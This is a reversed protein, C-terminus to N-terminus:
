VIGRLIAQNILYSLYFDGMEFKDIILNSIEYLRSLPSNVHCETHGLAPCWDFLIPVPHNAVPSMIDWMVNYKPNESFIISVCYGKYVKFTLLAPVTYGEDKETFKVGSYGFTMLQTLTLEDHLTRDRIRVAGLYYDGVAIKTLDGILQNFSKISTKFEAIKEPTDEGVIQHKQVHENERSYTFIGNPPKCCEELAINLLASPSFQALCLLPLVICDNLWSPYDDSVVGSITELQKKEQDTLILNDWTAEQKYWSLGYIASSNELFWHHESSLKSLHDVYEKTKRDTFNRMTKLEEDGGNMQKSYEEIYELEIQLGSKLKDLLIRNSRRKDADLLYYGPWQRGGNPLQDDTDLLLNMINKYDKENEDDILVRIDDLMDLLGRIRPAIEYNKTFRGVLPIDILKEDRLIRIIHAKKRLCDLIFQRNLVIESYKSYLPDLGFRRDPYFRTSYDKAVHKILSIYGETTEVPYYKSEKSVKEFNTTKRLIGETELQKLTKYFINDNAYQKFGKDETCEKKYQEYLEKPTNAWVFPLRFRPDNEMGPLRLAWMSYRNRSDRDMYIRDLFTSLIFCEADSPNTSRNKKESM